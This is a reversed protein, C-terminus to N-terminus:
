NFVLKAAGVVAASNQLTARLVPMRALPALLERRLAAEMPEWWLEGADALGGSVVLVEPDLINLLGGAAQGAAAAATSVAEGAAPDGDHALAFVARTDPVAPSGGLRLFAAHIAPGSAVAEVHGSNGCSCPLAEGGSYAYPSALHGVHGGVFRHGLVPTGALVLSGGVGTGFAILLSSATGAAAGRWAEGLAHAHVDNVARVAAAPLGLRGALGKTLATRAWGRIADTASVVVGRGADIVGASGVGVGITTIGNAQARLRIRSVLAATADLVAEGGARSLTPTTESFLLKGDESVLGAATKTGGLDVGIAHAM